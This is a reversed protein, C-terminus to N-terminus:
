QIYSEVHVSIGEQFSMKALGLADLKKTVKVVLRRGRWLQVLKKNINPENLLDVSWEEGTWWNKIQLKLHRIDNTSAAIPKNRLWKDYWFSSKGERVKIFMHRYVELFVKHM